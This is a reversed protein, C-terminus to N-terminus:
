PFRDSEQLFAGCLVKYSPFKKPQREKYRGGRCRGVKGKRGHGDTKSTPKSTPAFCTGSTRTTQVIGKPAGLACRETEAKPASPALAILTRVNKRRRHGNSTVGTGAGKPFTADAAVGIVSSAAFSPPM